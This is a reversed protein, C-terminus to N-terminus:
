SIEDWKMLIGSMPATKQGSAEGELVANSENLGNNSKSAISDHKHLVDQNLITKQISLIVLLHFLHARFNKWFKM